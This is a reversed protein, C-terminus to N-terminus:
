GTPSACSGSSRSLAGPRDAAAARGRRLDGVAHARDAGPRAVRPRPRPRPRGRARAPRRGRRPRARHPRPPDGARGRAADARAALHGPRDRVAELYGRLAALLADRPDGHPSTARCCPRSSASRARADRARRAGRAARRPRRLARLRDAAHHRGRARGGRDLRRPLRARRRDGQDVDLLQERREGASCGPAARCRRMMNCRRLNRTRLWMSPCAISSMPCRTADDAAAEGAEAHRDAELLLADVVEDHELAAVVDAAGPVVVGVRAAGAVHGRM